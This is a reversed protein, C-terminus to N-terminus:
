INNVYKIYRIRFSSFLSWRRKKIMGKKLYLFAILISFAKQSPFEGINAMTGTAVVTIYEGDLFCDTTKPYQEFLKVLENFLQDYYKCLEKM